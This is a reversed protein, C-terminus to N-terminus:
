STGNLYTKVGEKLFSHDDSELFVFWEALLHMQLNLMWAPIRFQCIKFWTKSDWSKM